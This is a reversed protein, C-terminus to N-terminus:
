GINNSKRRNCEECLLQINRYTNAGGKSFPIIHDFELKESSDCEVCKGADRNWVKDKVVQSIKRSSVSVKETELVFKDSNKIFNYYFWGDLNKFIQPQSSTGEKQLGIGDDFPTISVIRDYRVRFNKNPSSFYVHKNTIAITGTGIPITKLTQVPHGRFRSKRYYVGKMVKVSIGDSGGEYTTRIRKEFYEVGHNLYVLFENKLFKFPLNGSLNIRTKMPKEEFLNRLISARVIKHNIEFNDLYKEQELKFQEIFHTISTEENESLVSDELFQNLKESLLLTLELSFNVYGDEAINKIRKFDVDNIKVSVDDVDDVNFREFYNSFEAKIINLSDEHKSKCEQHYKTFIKCKKECYLCKTKQKKIFLFVLIILALVIIFQIEM